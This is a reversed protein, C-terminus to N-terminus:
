GGQVAGVIEIEDGDDLPEVGWRGRRVVQGNLAVAIGPSGSGYGLEQLLEGLSHVDLEVNKGNVRVAVPRSQTAVKAEERASQPM